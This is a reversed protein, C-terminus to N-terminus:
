STNADSKPQAEQLQQQPQHILSSFDVSQPRIPEDGSTTDTREKHGHDSSLLLKGIVSNFESTLGKNQLLKHQKAMLYRLMGFFEPHERGWNDLTDECVEVLVAFGAKTPIVDGDGKFGRNVYDKLREPMAETYKSPRGVPNSEKQGQGQKNEIAEEAM